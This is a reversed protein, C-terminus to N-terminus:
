RQDPPRERIRGLREGLRGPERRALPRSWKAMARQVLALQNRARGAECAGSKKRRLAHRQRSARREPNSVIQVARSLHPRQKRIEGSVAIRVLNPGVADRCERCGDGRGATRPPLPKADPLIRSSRNRLPSENRRATRRIGPLRRSRSILTGKRERPQSRSLLLWAAVPARNSADKSNDVTSRM